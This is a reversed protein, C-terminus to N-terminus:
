KSRPSDRHFNGLRDKVYLPIEQTEPMRVTRYNKTEVRGQKTLTYIFLEQADDANVAGLRTPLMVKASEFAIQLPRLHTFGLKSQEVLNVRAM